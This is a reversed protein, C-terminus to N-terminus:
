AYNLQVAMKTLKRENCIHYILGCRANIRSAQELLGEVTCYTDQNSLPVEKDFGCLPALNITKQTRWGDVVQPDLSEIVRKIRDVDHHSIKYM